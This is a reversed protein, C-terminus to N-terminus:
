ELIKDLRPPWLWLSCKSGFHNRSGLPLRNLVRLRLRRPPRQKLFCRSAIKSGPRSNCSSRCSYTFRKSNRRMTTARHRTGGLEPLSGSPSGMNSSSAPLPPVLVDTGDSARAMLVPPFCCFQTTSVQVLCFWFREHVPFVGHVNSCSIARSGFHSRVKLRPDQLKHTSRWNTKAHCIDIGTDRFGETPDLTTQELAKQSTALVVFDGSYTVGPFYCEALRLSTSKGCIGGNKNLASLM